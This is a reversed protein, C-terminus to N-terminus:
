RHTSVMSLSRAMSQLSLSRSALSIFRLPCALNTSYQDAARYHKCTSMVTEKSDAKILIFCHSVKMIPQKSIVDLRSTPLTTPVSRASVSWNFFPHYSYDGTTNGGRCQSGIAILRRSGPDIEHFAHFSSEESGRLGGRWSSEAICCLTRVCCSTYTWGAMSLVSSLLHQAKPAM